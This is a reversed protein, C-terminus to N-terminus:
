RPLAVVQSDPGGAIRSLHRLFLEPDSFDSVVATAGVERLQDSRPGSGVGIFSYGLSMSARGDWVGDGIYVFPGPDANSLGRVAHRIIEARAPHDSSSALPVGDFPVGAGRLKVLASPRWAGTAMAVQWGAEELVRFISEAGPIARFRDPASELAAELLNAVRNAIRDQVERDPVQRGMRQCATALIASNTVENFTPWDAPIEVELEALIAAEYCEVDVEMTDTLTGDIDFIAVPM